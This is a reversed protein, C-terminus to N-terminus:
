RPQAAFLDRPIFGGNVQVGGPLGAFVEMAVQSPIEDAAVKTAGSMAQGRQRMWGQHLDGYFWDNLAQKGKWWTFIIYMGPHDVSAVMHKGLLGPYGDLWKMITDMGAPMQGPRANPYTISAAAILPSTDTPVKAFRDPRASVPTKLRARANTATESEPDADIAAQFSQAAGAANGTNTQVMGLVLFVRARREKALAAFQPHRTAIELDERAIAGKNLFPPFHGYSMGRMLRLDLQDPALSVARDMDATAEQMLENAPGFKGSQALTGSQQLKEIGRQFLAKADQSVAALSSLVFLTVFRFKM